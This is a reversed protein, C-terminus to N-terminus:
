LSEIKKKIQWPALFVKGACVQIQKESILHKLQTEM